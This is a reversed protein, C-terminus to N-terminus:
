PRIRIRQSRNAKQPQNYKSIARTTGGALGATATVTNGEDQFIGSSIFPTAALATPTTLAVMALGVLVRGRRTPRDILM